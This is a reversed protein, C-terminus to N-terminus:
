RAQARAIVKELEALDNPHGQWLREGAGNLLVLTPFSRADYREMLTGPKPGPETFLVYNLGHDRKYDAARALRAERPVDDCLVGVVELGRSGHRTQLDKLTPIARKCPACYTTMFDLLVLSNERGTPFEREVGAADILLFESRPQIPVSRATRGPLSAAPPRALGAPGDTRLEPRGVTPTPAPPATPSWDREGVESAVRPAGPEGLRAPLSSQDLPVPSPAGPNSPSLVASPPPISTDPPRASGPFGPRRPTDGAGAGSQPSAAPFLFDYNLAIVQQQSKPHGTPVYVRGACDRGEVRSRATLVYGSKPKLGYIQFRGANDTLTDLPAGPGDSGDALTYEVSVGKAPKGDPDEVVGGLAARSEKVADFNPDRRPSKADKADRSATPGDLWDGTPKTNGRRPIAGGPLNGSPQCGGLILVGLTALAALRDLRRTMGDAGRPEAARAVTLPRLIM